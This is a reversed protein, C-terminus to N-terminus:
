AFGRRVLGNRGALLEELPELIVEGPLAYAAPVNAPSQPDLAPGGVM